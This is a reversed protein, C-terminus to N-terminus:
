ITSLLDRAGASGLLFLYSCPRNQQEQAWGYV